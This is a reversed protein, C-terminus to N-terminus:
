DGPSCGYHCNAAVSAGQLLHTVREKLELPAAAWSVSGSAPEHTRLSSTGPWSNTCWCRSWTPSGSWVPGSEPPRSRHPPSCCNGHCRRFWCAWRCHWLARQCSWGHGIAGWRTVPWYASDAPDGPTRAPLDPSCSWGPRRLSSGASQSFRPCRWSLSHTWLTALTGSYPFVNSTRILNSFQETGRGSSIVVRSASTSFLSRHACCVMYGQVLFWTEWHTVGFAVALCRSMASSFVRQPWHM